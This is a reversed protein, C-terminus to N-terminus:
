QRIIKDDRYSDIIISICFIGILIVLIPWLIGVILYAWLDSRTGFYSLACFIILAIVLYVACIM